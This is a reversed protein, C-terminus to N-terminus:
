LHHPEPLPHAVFSAQLTVLCWGVLAGLGECRGAAGAVALVGPRLAHSLDRRSVAGLAVRASYRMELRNSGKGSPMWFETWQLITNAIGPRNGQVMCHM